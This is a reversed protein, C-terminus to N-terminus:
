QDAYRNMAPFTMTILRTHACFGRTASQLEMDLGCEGETTLAM